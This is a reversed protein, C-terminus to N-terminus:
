RKEQETHFDSIWERPYLKNTMKEIVGKKTWKGDSNNLGKASDEYARRETVTM